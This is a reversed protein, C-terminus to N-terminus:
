SSQLMGFPGSKLPEYIKATELVIPMKSGDPMRYDYNQKESEDGLLPIRVRDVPMLLHTQEEPLNYYLTERYALVGNKIPRVWKQVVFKLM